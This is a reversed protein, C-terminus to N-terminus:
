QGTAHAAARDPAASAFAGRAQARRAASLVALISATLTNAHIGVGFLTVRSPTTIEVFAVARAQSGQGISKEEFSLVDVPLGLANVLADIPGNGRGTRQQRVGGLTM